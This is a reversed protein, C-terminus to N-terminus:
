ILVIAGAEVHLIGVFQEIGKLAQMALLEFAGTNAQGRYPTADTAVATAEPCLGFDIM